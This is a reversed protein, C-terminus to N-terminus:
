EDSGGPAIPTGDTDEPIEIAFLLRIWHHREQAQRLWVYPHLDTEVEETVPTRLTGTLRDEFTILWKAM